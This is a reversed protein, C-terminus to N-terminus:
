PLLDQLNELVTEATGGLGGQLSESLTEPSIAKLSKNLVFEVLKADDLVIEPISMSGGLSIKLPPARAAAFALTFDGDLGETPLNIELKGDGSAPVGILKPTALIKGAAATLPLELSTLETEGGALAGKLLGAFGLVGSKGGLFNNIKVLDVGVIVPKDISLLGEADLSSAPDAPILSFKVDGNIVGAGLGREDRLLLSSLSRVQLAKANVRGEAKAVSVLGSASLEGEALGATLRKIRMTSSALEAVVQLDNFRYGGWSLLGVRGKFKGKVALLDALVSNKAESDGLPISRATAKEANAEEGKVAPLLLKGASASVDYEGNNQSLSIKLEDGFRKPLIMVAEVNLAAPLRSEVDLKLRPLTQFPARGSQAALRYAAALDLNDAVLSLKRVGGLELSAKLSSALGGKAVLSEVTLLKADMAYDAIAAINNIAQQRFILTKVKLELGIRAFPSEKSPPLLRRPEVDAATAAAEKPLLRDVNLRDLAAKIALRGDSLSVMGNLNTDGIKANAVTASREAPNFSGAATLKPPLNIAISDTEALLKVLSPLDDSRLQWKAEKAASGYGARFSTEALTASVDAQWSKREAKVAVALSDLNPLPSLEVNKGRLNLEHAAAFDTSGEGVMSQEGLQLKINKLQVTKGLEGQAELSLLFAQAPLASTPPILKAEALLDAFKKLNEGSLYARADLEYPASPSMEGRLDLTAEGSDVVVKLREDWDVDVSLPLVDLALIDGEGHYGGGDKTPLEVRLDLIHIQRCDKGRCHRIVGDELRLRQVNVSFRSDAAQVGEQSDEQPSDERAADRSGEPSSDASDRPKLLKQPLKSAELVFGEVGVSGILVRGRLLPLFEATASILKAEFFEGAKIGVIDAKLRPFFIIRLREIAVDVGLVRSAQKEILPKYFNADVLLSALLPVASLVALVVVIRTLARGLRTKAM